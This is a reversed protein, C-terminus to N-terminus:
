RRYSSPRFTDLADQLAPLPDSWDGVDSHVSPRMDKLVQWAASLRGRPEASPPRGGFWYRVLQLVDGKRYVTRSGMRIPPVAPKRGNVHYEYLWVPFNWGASISGQTSAWFRGNTEMYFLGETDIDVLFQVHAVGTWRLATILDRAHAQADERLPIIERAIGEHLTKRLSLYSHMAQVEGDIAFICINITRSRIFQQFVVDSDSGRVRGLLAELEAADRAFTVRFLVPRKLSTDDPNTNKLVVPFEPVEGALCDYEKPCPVGAAQALDLNIRKDLVANLIDAKPLAWKVPGPLERRNRSIASVAADTVPIVLEAAHREAAEAV